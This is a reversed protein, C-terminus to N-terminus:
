DDATLGSRKADGTRRLGRELVDRRGEFEFARAGTASQRSLRWRQIGKVIVVTWTVASSSVLLGLIGKAIWYAAADSMKM